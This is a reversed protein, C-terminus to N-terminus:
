YGGFPKKGKSEITAVVRTIPKVEFPNVNLLCFHLKMVEADLNTHVLMSKITADSITPLEAAPYELEPLPLLIDEGMGM